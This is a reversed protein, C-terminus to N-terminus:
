VRKREQGRLGYGSSGIGRRRKERGEVQLRGTFNDSKGGLRSKALKEGRQVVKKKTHTVEEIRKGKKSGVEFLRKWISPWKSRGL